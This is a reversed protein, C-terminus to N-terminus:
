RAVRGSAERYLVEMADDRAKEWRVFAFMATMYQEFAAATQEPVSRIEVEGNDTFSLGHSEAIAAVFQTDVDNKMPIGLGAFHDFVDGDDYFRVFGPGLEAYALIDDGDCFRFPTDILAISGDDTLLHCDYGIINSLSACDM